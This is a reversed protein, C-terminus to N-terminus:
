LDKNEFSNFISKSVLQYIDFAYKEKLLNLHKQMVNTDFRVAPGTQAEHPTLQYLKEFTEKILPLLVEFPIDVKDTLNKAQEYMHNVFNCAFVASAHIYIRKESPLSYIIPSISEALASIEDFAYNNNGEIFLPIENWQIDRAKSFTQLPYLVGYNDVKTEFINAPMSGATHIWIGKHHPMKSILDVLVSDKVSFIYYDAKDTISEIKSISEANVIRGLQQASLMTRSYVQAISHGKQQLIIALHTALNGAGIFVIKM